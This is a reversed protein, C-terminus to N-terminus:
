KGAEKALAGAPCFKFCLGCNNCKVPDIFLLTEKLEMAYQPCVGVCGGCYLCKVHNVKM